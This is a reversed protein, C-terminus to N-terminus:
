MLSRMQNVRATFRVRWLRITKWLMVFCWSKQAVLVKPRSTPPKNSSKARSNLRTWILEQARQVLISPRVCLTPPKMAEPISQILIKDAPSMGKQVLASFGGIFSVGIAKAAKDLTQAISVYSDANTAAAIQAIPTVSIRQNVIPVGYKASLHKATAVLDRGITTIKNYINENLVNINPHICDHLDIGITITRVDFNQDSVMRITELIENSHINSM